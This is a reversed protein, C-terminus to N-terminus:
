NKIRLVAFFVSIEGSKRTHFNRPFACNGCLKPRDCLKRLIEVGPFWTFNRYKECHLFWHVLFSMENPYMQLFSNKNILIIKFLKCFNVNKNWNNEFNWSFTIQGNFALDLIDAFINKLSVRKLKTEVPRYIGIRDSFQRYIM